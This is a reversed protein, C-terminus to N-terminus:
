FFADALHMNIIYIDASPRRAKRTCIIWSHGEFQLSM